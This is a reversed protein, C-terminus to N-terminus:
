AFKRQRCRLGPEESLVPPRGGGDCSGRQGQPPDREGPAPELNERELARLKVALATPIGVRMGSEVEAKKIRNKLMHASCGIKTAISVIAWWRSGHQGETGSVLREVRECVKPFSRNTTKNILSWGM